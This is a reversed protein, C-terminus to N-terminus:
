GVTFSVWILFRMKRDAFDPPPAPYHASRAAAVAADDLLPTGASQVLSVGTLSGARYDLELRTRGTVGMMRAAAPYRLADQVAQRMRAAFAAEAAGDAPARDVSPARAPPLASPAASAGAMPEVAPPAPRSPAPDAAPRLRPKIPTPHPPARMPAVIAGMAVPAASPEAPVIESSAGLPPAVLSPVIPTPDPPQDPTPRPVVAEAVASSSVPEPPAPRDAPAPVVSETVPAPPLTMIEVTTEHLKEPPADPPQWTVLLVLVAAHLCLALAACAVVRPQRPPATGGLRTGRDAIAPRRTSWLTGAEQRM